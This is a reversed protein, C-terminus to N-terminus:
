YLGLADDSDDLLWRKVKGTVYIDCTSEITDICSFSYSFQYKDLLSLASVPIKVEYGGCAFMNLGDTQLTDKHICAKANVTLSINENDIATIIADQYTRGNSCQIKILHGKVPIEAKNLNFLLESHKEYRDLLSEDYVINYEPNDQILSHLLDAQKPTYKFPIRGVNFELINIHNCNTKNATNM